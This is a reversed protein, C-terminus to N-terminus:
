PKVDWAVPFTWPWLHGPLSRPPSPSVPQIQCSAFEYRNINPYKSM